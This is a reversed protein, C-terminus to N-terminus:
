GSYGGIVAIRTYGLPGISGKINYGPRPRLEQRIADQIASAKQRLEDLKLHHLERFSTAVQLKVAAEDLRTQRAIVFAKEEPPMRDLTTRLDALVLAAKDTEGKLASMYYAAEKGALEAWILGRAYGKLQRNLEDIRGPPLDDGTLAVSIGKIARRNAEVQQVFLEQWKNHLAVSDSISWVPDTLGLWATGTVPFMVGDRYVVPRLGDAVLQGAQMGYLNLYIRDFLKGRDFIDPVYVAGYLRVLTEAYKDFTRPEVWFGGSPQTNWAYEARVLPHAHGWLMLTSAGRSSSSFVPSSIWPFPIRHRVPWNRWTTRRDGGHVYAWIQHGKGDERLRRSLEQFRGMTGDRRPGQERLIFQVNKVYKLRQSLSIYFALEKDWMADPESWRTYPPVVLGVLCDKSAVYGSDNKVSFIAELLANIDEAFAGAQGQASELDDSPWRSRCAACRNKWAALATTYTDYDEAHLYLANPETRTVFDRLLDAKLRRLERNSPCFGRTKDADGLTGICEYIEGNPYTRRNQLGMDMQYPAIVPRVGMERGQRNDALYKKDAKTSALSEKGLRYYPSMTVKGALAEDATRFNIWREEFDPYDNIHAATVEWGSQRKRIMQSLTVAAYITGQDGRGTLVAVVRQTHDRNKLFRIIYAQDTTQKQLFEIDERLLYQYRGILPHRAPNGILILDCNTTTAADLASVKVVPLEALHYIDRLQRNLYNAAATEKGTPADCLVILVNDKGRDLRIGGNEEKLYKPTPIINVASPPIHDTANNLSFSSRNSNFGPTSEAQQIAGATAGAQFFANALAVLVILGIKM